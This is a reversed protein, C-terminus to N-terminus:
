KRIEIESENVPEDVGVLLYQHDKTKGYCRIVKGKYVVLFTNNRAPQNKDM